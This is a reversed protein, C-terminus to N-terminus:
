HFTIKDRVKKVEEGKLIKAVAEESVSAMIYPGRDSDGASFDSLYPFLGYGEISFVMMVEEDEGVGHARMEDCLERLKRISIHACEPGCVHESSM